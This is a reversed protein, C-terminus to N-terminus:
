ACFVDPGDADLVDTQLRLGAGLGSLLQGTGEDDAGSQQGTDTADAGTSTAKCRLLAEPAIHRKPKPFLFLGTPQPLDRCSCATLGFFARSWAHRKQHTHNRGAVFGSITS